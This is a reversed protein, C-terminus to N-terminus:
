SYSAENLQYDYLIYVKYINIIDNLNLYIGYLISLISQKLKNVMFHSYIFLLQQKSKHLKIIYM